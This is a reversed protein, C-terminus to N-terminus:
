SVAGTIPMGKPLAAISQNPGLKEGALGREM